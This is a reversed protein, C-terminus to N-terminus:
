HTERDERLIRISTGEPAPSVNELLQRTERIARRREIQKVRKMVYNRLEDPWKIESSLEIMREKIQRPVRFSVTESMQDSLLLSSRCDKLNASM